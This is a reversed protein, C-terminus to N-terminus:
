GWIQRLNRALQGLFRRETQSSIDATMAEEIVSLIERKAKTPLDLGNQQTTSLDAVQRFWPIITNRSRQELFFSALTSLLDSATKQSLNELVPGTRDLLEFLVLEDGSYLAEAYAADVDGEAIYSKVSKWLSCQVESYSQRANASFGPALVNDSKRTQGGQMGQGSYKQVGKGVPPKSLLINSEKRIGAISSSSLRSGTSYKAGSVESNRTLSFQPHMNRSDVSRRPTCASLKPSLFGPSRKSVKSAYPDSYTGGRSLEEGMRGVVQELNSVKLQVMSMSDMINRTFVKLMETLDSQKNEIELLQKRICVIENAAQQCCGSMALTSTETVTSDLSRRDQMKVFYRREEDCIDECTSRQESMIPRVEPVLANRPTMVESKEFNESCINSTSSFEQKDDVQVCEYEIDQNSRTDASRDCAKTVSSSESEEKRTESSPIKQSRPVAIEIHWNNSTSSRPDEDITHAVKKFSCPTRNNDVHRGGKKYTLGRLMSENASTTDAYDEKHYNEKLSSGTESPETADPGPVNRWIYLAQLAADRVPKVKDFRCSELSRTCSSRFPGVYGGGGSAIDGLATAAAKRTTWDTSKLAEQISSMASSLVANTTAGGAQIISRNLEIVAPKGMFHPNKLLKVTRILMKQLIPLPPTDIYDIIRALCLASGFQVQRNQEGLAEFLPMVLIVFVGAEDGEGVGSSFKSALIGVTEVCADRVVSDTDKLRKVISAVMKGLHPGMLGEHVSTLTGMMRVCEKRVASKKESDTDLICSLFAVIGDPALGEIIKGLEEVGIKQTDRDALKNLAVVVKHKFEFTVQQPNVRTAGKAKGMSVHTKM